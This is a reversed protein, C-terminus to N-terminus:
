RAVPVMLADAVPDIESVALAVAGLPTVSGFRALLLAVSVSVRQDSPSASPQNTRSRQRVADRDLRVVTLAIDERVRQLIMDRVKKV